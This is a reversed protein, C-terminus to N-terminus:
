VTVSGVVSVSFFAVFLCAVLLVVLQWSQLVLTVLVSSSVDVQLCAVVFWAAHANDQTNCSARLMLVLSGKGMLATTAGTACVALLM